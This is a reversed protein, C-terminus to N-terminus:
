TPEEPTLSVIDLKTNLSPAISKIKVVIKDTKLTTGIPSSFDYSELLIEYVGVQLATADIQVESSGTQVNITIWDLESGAAQRLRPVITNAIPIEAYIDEVLFVNTEGMKLTVESPVPTDRVYKTGMIGLNCISVTADSLHSYDAVFHIYRGKMNVWLEKGFSWM